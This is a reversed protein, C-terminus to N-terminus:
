GKIIASNPTHHIDIYEVVPRKQGSRAVVPYCRICDNSELSKIARAFLEGNFGRDSLKRQLDRRWMRRNRAQKLVDVIVQECKGFRDLGTDAFLRLTNSQLWRGVAVATMLSESDIERKGALASYIMAIKLVHEFTRATLNAQKPHWTRREKKWGTYFNSWLEGAEATMEFHGFTREGVQRLEDAISGWAEISPSRVIPKPEQEPGSIILFRNLFGGSIELDSLIDDVYAQPTATVLSLFPQVIVTSDRIRDISAREPCYYLSNLRPLIDQTGKRRAVNLLARFEDAYVLGKTGERDALAEYIGESSVVGDLEKFDVGVHRLLESALWLVTSKRSDGTQGILLLYFNSYLPRPSWRWANRGIVMGAAILFAGWLAEL